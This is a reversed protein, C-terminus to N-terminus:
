LPWNRDSAVSLPWQPWSLSTANLQVHRLDQGEHPAHRLGGRVQDVMHNGMHGHARAGTRWHTGSRLLYM